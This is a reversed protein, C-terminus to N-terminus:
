YVFRVGLLKFTNPDPNTRYLIHSSEKTPDFEVQNARGWAHLNQQCEDMEEHMDADSVDKDFNKFANLDDAFVLERFENKSM